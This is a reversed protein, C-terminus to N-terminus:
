GKLAKFYLVAGNDIEYPRFEFGNKEYIDRLENEPRLTGRITSGRRNREPVPVSCIFVGDNTLARKTERIVTELDGFFNLSLNCICMDAFGDDVPIDEAPSVFLTFDTFRSKSFKKSAIKLLGASIDTGVYTNDPPLFCSLNGSGTALELVRRDHADKLERELFGNHTEFSAAFKKPFVSNKMISDYFGSFLGGLWPKKALPKNDRYVYHIPGRKEAVLGSKLM